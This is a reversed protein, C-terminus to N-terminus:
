DRRLQAFDNLRFGCAIQLSMWYEASAGLAESLRLATEATMARRQLVIDNLRSRPLSLKKALEYVSMGRPSLFDCRLVEGPHPASLYFTKTM